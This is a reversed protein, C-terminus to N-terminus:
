CLLYEEIQAGFRHSLNALTKPALGALRSFKLIKNLLRMHRCLATSEKDGKGLWILVKKAREFVEGM